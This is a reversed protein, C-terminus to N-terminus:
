RDGFLKKKLEDKEMQEKEQREIRNRERLVVQTWYVIPPISAVVAAVVVNSDVRPAFEAEHAVVLFGEIGSRCVLTSYKPDQRTCLHLPSLGQQLSRTHVLQGSSWTGQNSPCRIANCMNLSMM